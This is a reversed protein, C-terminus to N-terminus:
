IHHVHCKHPAKLAETYMFSLQWDIRLYFACDEMSMVNEHVTRVDNKRLNYIVTDGEQFMATLWGSDLKWVALESGLPTELNIRGNLGYAFQYLNKKEM